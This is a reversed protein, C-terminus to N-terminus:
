VRAPAAMGVMSMTRPSWSWDARAMSSMRSVATALRPRSIRAGTTVQNAAVASPRSPTARSVRVTRAAMGVATIAVTMAVSNLARGPKTVRETTTEVRALM